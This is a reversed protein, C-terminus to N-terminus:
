NVANLIKAVGLLGANIKPKGPLGTIVQLDSRSVPVDIGLPVAIGNQRIAASVKSPLCGRLNDLVAGSHRCVKLHRGKPVEVENRIQLEAM